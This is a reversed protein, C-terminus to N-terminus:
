FTFRGIEVTQTEPLFASQPLNEVEILELRM